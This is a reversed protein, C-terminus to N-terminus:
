PLLKFTRMFWSMVLWRICLEFGILSLEILDTLVGRLTECILTRTSSRCSYVLQRLTGQSFCYFVSEYM